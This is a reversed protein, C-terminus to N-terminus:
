NLNCYVIVEAAAVGLLSAWPQLRVFNHSTPMIVKSTRQDRGHSLANRINRITGSFIPIGKVSFIEKDWDPGVMPEIVFGGDFETKTSFSDLNQSIEDWLVHPKVTEKLVAEFKQSDQLKAEQVAGLVRETMLNLDDLANPSALAQKISNRVSAELFYFSAYEIIRFSYLFRRPPDGDRSARWYHLLNDDIKRYNIQNPYQDAIFRTQKQSIINELQPSHTLIIPSKRDYYAMYFNLLNVLYLIKDDNWEIDRIWFSLPNGFPNKINKKKAKSFNQFRTFDQFPLLNRYLTVSQDIRKANAAIMLLTESSPGFGCEYERSQHRIKFVRKEIEKFGSSIKYPTFIVEFDKTDEHWIASFREPLFINNLKEVFDKLVEPIEIALSSDGWPNKIRLIPSGSDKIEEIVSVPNASLFPALKEKTKSLKSKAKAKKVTKSSTKKEKESM